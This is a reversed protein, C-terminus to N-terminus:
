FVVRVLYMVLTIIFGVILIFFFIRSVLCGVRAIGRFGFIGALIALVLFVIALVPLM